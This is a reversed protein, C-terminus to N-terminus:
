LAWDAHLILDEFLWYNKNSLLSIYYRIIIYNLTAKFYFLESSKM